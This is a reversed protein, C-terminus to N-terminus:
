GLMADLKGPMSGSRGFSSGRRASLGGPARWEGGACADAEENCHTSASGNMGGEGSASPKRPPAVRYEGAVSDWGNIACMAQRFDRYLTHFRFSDGRLRRIDLNLLGGESRQVLFHVMLDDQTSQMREANAPLFVAAAQHDVDFTHNLNELAESIAAILEEASVHLGDWGLTRIRTERGPLAADARTAPLMKNEM